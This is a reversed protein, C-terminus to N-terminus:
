KSKRVLLEIFNDAKELRELTFLSETPFCYEDNTYCKFVLDQDPDYLWTKPDIVKPADIDIFVRHESM